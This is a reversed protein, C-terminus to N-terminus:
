KKPRKNRQLVSQWLNSDMYRPNIKAGPYNFAWQYLSPFYGQGQGSGSSFRRGGHGGGHGGGNSHGQRPTFPKKEYHIGLIDELSKGSTDQPGNGQVSDSSKSGGGLMQALQLKADTSYDTKPDYQPSGLPLRNSGYPRPGGYSQNM